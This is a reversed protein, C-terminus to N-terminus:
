ADRQNSRFALVNAGNIRRPSGDMYGQFRKDMHFIEASLVTLTEASSLFEQCYGHSM